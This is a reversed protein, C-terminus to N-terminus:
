LPLPAGSSLEESINRCRTERVFFSAALAIGAYGAMLWFGGQYDTSAYVRLGDKLTGQWFIDLLKGFAPQMLSTGLFTGMNVISVAMGAFRPDSVEKAVPFTITFGAGMFGMFGFVLYGYLGPGWQPIALLGWSLLYGAVSILLINKRRGLWDSFWGFFLCGGAFGLLMITIYTAALPREFGKVDRLYPMGWLGMFAYLGGTTGFNVIFGPWIHPNRAVGLLQRALHALGHYPAKTAKSLPAFGCDEPRNRVLLGGVLGLVISICGIAVFTTRWTIVDLVAALPGAALVSGLNGVLLTLGSMFGYRSESFWVSNSKMICVFVVSVGLGVLLRGLSAVMLSPALGFLISGCGALLNGAMVTTRTGLADALVGSPVQMIAYVYFYMAALSGLAVGSTNFAIMLEGAVVGPAMRHFYVTIYALILVFFILWRILNFRLTPLQSM